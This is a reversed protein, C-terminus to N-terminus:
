HQTAYAKKKMILTVLEGVNKLESIEGASFKMQFAKEISVVLRIHALSDWDDVTESNTEPSIVLSEDDMVDHFIPTLQAYIESETQLAM